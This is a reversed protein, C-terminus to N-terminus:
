NRPAIQTSNKCSRPQPAPLRQNHFLLETKTRRRAPLMWSILSCTLLKRRRERSRTFARWGSIPLKRPVVTSNQAALEAYLQAAEDYKRDAEKEQALAFKSLTAVEALNSKSLEALEALGKDRDLYLMNTAIFYRAETRYPDGYKAAVKQFEEIAKQAREQENAFKPAKPDAPGSVGVLQATAIVIGRGLARRAEDAKRNNWKVWFGVLVGLLVVGIIGYLIAKGKGELRDGLRDFSHTQRTAFAITSYNEPANRKTNPWTNRERM